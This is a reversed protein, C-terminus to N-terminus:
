FGVLHGHRREVTNRDGGRGVVPFCSEKGLSCFGVFFGGTAAFVIYFEANSDNFVALCTSYDNFDFDVRLYAM